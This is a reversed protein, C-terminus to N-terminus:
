KKAKPRNFNQIKFLFISTGKQAASRSIPSIIVTQKWTQEEQGSLPLM